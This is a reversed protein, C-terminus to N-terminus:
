IYGGKYPKLVYTDGSNMQFIFNKGAALGQAHTDTCMFFFIFVLVSVATLIGMERLM